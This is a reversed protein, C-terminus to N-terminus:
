ETRQDPFPIIWDQKSAKWWNLCAERSEAVEPPIVPQGVAIQRFAPLIREDGAELKEMMRPLVATGLAVAFVGLPLQMVRHGYELSAVSGAVLLSALFTDVFANVEAVGMGVVGPIMLRGM